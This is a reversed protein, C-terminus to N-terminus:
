PLAEGIPLVIGETLVFEPPSAVFWSIFDAVREPPLVQTAPAKATDKQQREEPSFAGWNTAMAGPYLIIARIGHERGEDALAETLGTLGFKSACYAAANAWGKKGAVSSVNVITGGGAERMRPFAARALLFPARLNVSLTRDWGAADLDEVPGPADTGAANVLVDLRGFEDVTRAVAAGTEGEDALDTPVVLARAGTASIERAAGKLEEESRAVLSVDAGARALSVATARGLGSSAGTVLAARGKLGGEGDAGVM